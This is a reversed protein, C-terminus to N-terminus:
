KESKRQAKKERQQPKGTQSESKSTKLSLRDKCAKLIKCLNTKALADFLSNILKLYSSWIKEEFSLVKIISLSLRSKLQKERVLAIPPSAASM